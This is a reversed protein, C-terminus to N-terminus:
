RVLHLVTEMHATQPFLDFLHAQEVKFGSELLMRLDRSLTAPDCSVLTVQSASTSCLAAAAKDGMGARPPDVLVFDVALKEGRKQLFDETTARTPKVNRPANHKLDGFGHPSAEVAIVDEFNGALALTFLGVGAYLDLATKGTASSTATKVLDDVLFRNTQFFSGGSVRYDHGVAHYMLSSEGIALSEENHISSLPARQRTEDEVPSTAFVVMGVVSNLRSTLAASFAKCSDAADQNRVYTEVLLQTDDHNAFFQMGHVTAPVKLARGLAWVASIARNILPSSIPCSEVALLKHSNTEFYGLAFAPDHQLRVRTRNRYNWPESAHVQIEQELELKATRRMTERLIEAKFRLQAPYDIHQYQCGGCKGFYPCPPVVRDPSPMLVKELQARVFGSRSEVVTADVQEGPVVFPLFVTKGRGQADAPLRALGDGGYVLKEIQLEM